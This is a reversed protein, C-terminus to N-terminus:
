IKAYVKTLWSKRPQQKGAREYYKKLDTIGELYEITTLDLATAPNNYLHVGRANAFYIFNTESHEGITGIFGDYGATFFHIYHNEPELFKKMQKVLNKWCGEMEAKIKEDKQTKEYLNKLEKLDRLNNKVPVISIKKFSHYKRYYIFILSIGFFGVVFLVWISWPLPLTRYGYSFTVLYIFFLIVTIKLIRDLCDDPNKVPKFM